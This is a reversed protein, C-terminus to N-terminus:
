NSVNMLETITVCCTAGVNSADLIGVEELKVTIPPLLMIDGNKFARAARDSDRRSASILRFPRGVFVVGCSGDIWLGPYLGGPTM